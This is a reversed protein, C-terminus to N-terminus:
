PVRNMDSPRSALLAAFDEPAAWKRFPEVFEAWHSDDALLEDVAHIVNKGSQDSSCAVGAEARATGGRIPLVALKERATRNTYFFVDMPLVFAYDIRDAQILNFLLGNVLVSTIGNGDHAQTFDAIPTDYHRMHTYGGTVGPLAALKDLDVEGKVLAPGLAALKDRRTILRYGPLFIHRASFVAFRQREPTVLVNVKCVGSGHELEHNARATSVHVVHHTFGPLHSTLFALDVSDITESSHPVPQADTVWTISEGRAAAAAFLSLAIVPGGFRM